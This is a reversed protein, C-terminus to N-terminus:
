EYRSLLFNRRSTKFKGREYMVNPCFSLFYFLMNVFGM